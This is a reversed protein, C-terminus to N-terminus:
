DYFVFLTEGYFRGDIVQGPGFRRIRKASLYNTFCNDIDDLSVDEKLWHSPFNINLPRAPILTSVPVIELNLNLDETKLLFM